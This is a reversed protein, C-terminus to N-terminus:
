THGMDRECAALAVDPIRLRRAWGARGHLEGRGVAARAARGGAAAVRRDVCVADLRALRAGNALGATGIAIAADARLAASAGGHACTATLKCDRTSIDM